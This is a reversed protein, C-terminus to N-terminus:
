TTNSLYYVGIVASPLADCAYKSVVLDNGEKICRGSIINQVGLASDILDETPDDPVCNCFDSRTVVGRDVLAAYFICCGLQDLDFNM